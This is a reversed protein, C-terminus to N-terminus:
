KALARILCECRRRATIHCFTALDRGDIGHPQVAAGPETQELLEGYNEWRGANEPLSLMWKEFRHVANLDNAYDPVLVWSPDGESYGDCYWLYCGSASPLRNKTTRRLPERKFLGHLRAMEITIQEDTIVHKRPAAVEPPVNCVPCANNGGGCRTCRENGIHTKM